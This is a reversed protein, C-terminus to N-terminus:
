KKKDKRYRCTAKPKMMTGMNSRYEKKKNENMQYETEISIEM